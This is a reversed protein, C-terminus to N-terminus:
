LEALAAEAAAAAALLRRDGMREGMLMFGV